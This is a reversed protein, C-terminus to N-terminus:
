VPVTTPVMYWTCQTETAHAATDRSPRAQRRYAGIFLMASCRGSRWPYGARPCTPAILTCDPSSAHKRWAIPEGLKKGAFLMAAVASGTGATLEFRRADDSSADLLAISKTGVAHGGSITATGEYVFVMCTDLGDAISFELTKGAALEIDVMQVPQVTRFRGIRADDGLQGALLRLNM